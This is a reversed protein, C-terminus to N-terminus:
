LSLYGKVAGNWSGNVIDLNKRIRALNVGLHKNYHREQALVANWKQEIKASDTREDGQVHKVKISSVIGM